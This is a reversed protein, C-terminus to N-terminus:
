AGCYANVQPPEFAESDLVAQVFSLLSRRV